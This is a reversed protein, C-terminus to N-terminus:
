EEVRGNGVKRGRVPRFVEKEEEKYLVTLLNFNKVRVLGELLIERM